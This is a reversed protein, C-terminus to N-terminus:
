PKEFKANHTNPASYNKTIHPKGMCQLINLQIWLYCYCAGRGTTVDLFIELCQSMLVVPGYQARERKIFDDSM